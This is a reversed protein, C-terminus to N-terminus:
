CRRAIADHLAQATRYPDGAGAAGLLGRMVAVADAGAQVCAAANKADIGGLAVVAMRRGTASRVIRRASELAEVGRGKKDRSDFVPSVLVADAGESVAREVDEDSHAAVSVRAPRGMTRRTKEVAGALDSVQRGPLHVGDAGVDRAVEADGNVVLAAGVARTVVRLEGAFVRLSVLARRKDRLQVALWGPPLASAVAKVCRVIGDDGYAPDTVLVIRPAIREGV